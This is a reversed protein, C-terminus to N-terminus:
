AAWEGFGGARCAQDRILFPWDAFYYLGIDLDSTEHHTRSAFSGGLVIAAMGPIQSFQEVLGELIARKQKPIHILDDPM